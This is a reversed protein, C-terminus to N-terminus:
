PKVPKEEFPEFPNNSFHGYRLNGYASRSHLISIGRSNHTIANVRHDMNEKPNEGRTHIM